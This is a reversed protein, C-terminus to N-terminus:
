VPFYDFVLGINVRGSGCIGYTGLPVGFPVLLNMYGYQSSNDDGQAVLSDAGDQRFLNSLTPITTPLAPAIGSPLVANPQWVGSPIFQVIAPDMGVDKSALLGSDDKLYVRMNSIAVGSTGLNVTIATGSFLLTGSTGVSTYTSCGRAVRQKFAFSGGELHRTGAPDAIESIDWEFFRIIPPNTVM